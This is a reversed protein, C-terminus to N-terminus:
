ERKGDTERGTKSENEVKKLRVREKWREREGHKVRM